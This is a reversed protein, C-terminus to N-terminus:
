AKEHIRPPSSVSAPRESHKAQTDADCSGLYYDAVAWTAGHTWQTYSLFDGGSQWSYPLSSPIAYAVPGERPNNPLSEASGRSVGGGHVACGASFTVTAITGMPAYLYHEDKATPQLSLTLLRMSANTWCLAERSRSSALAFGRSRM